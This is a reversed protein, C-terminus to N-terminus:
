RPWRGSCCTSASSRCWADWRWWSPRRAVARRRAHLARRGGAAGGDGPRRPLGLMEVIEARSSESLTVIRSSRYFRRRSGASRDPRGSRALTPPLVMGWMEAHVHHLFVIRPGRYWLPSLFPMGNWIEVLADGPRHGM